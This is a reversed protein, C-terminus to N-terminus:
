IQLKKEPRRSARQEVLLSIGLRPLQIFALYARAYPIREENM